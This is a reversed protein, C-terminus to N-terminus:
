RRHGGLLLFHEAITGRFQDAIEPKCHLSPRFLRMPHLSQGVDRYRSKPHTSASLSRVRLQVGVRRVREWAPPRKGSVVAFNQLFVQLGEADTFDYRFIVFIHDYVKALEQQLM